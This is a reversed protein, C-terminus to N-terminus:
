ARSEVSWGVKGSRRGFVFVLVLGMRRWGDRLDEDWVVCWVVFGCLTWRRGGLARMGVGWGGKWRWRGRGRREFGRGGGWLVGRVNGMVVGVGGGGGGGRCGGGRRGGGRGGGV